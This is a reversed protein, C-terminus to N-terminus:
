STQKKLRAVISFDVKREGNRVKEEQRELTVDAFCECKEMNLKTQTVVAPDSAFGSLRVEDTRTRELRTVEVTENQPICGSMQDLIVIAPPMKSLFPEVVKDPTLEAVAKTLEDEIKGPAPVPKGPVTKKFVETLANDLWVDRARLKQLGSFFSLIGVLVLVGVLGSSFMARRRLEPTVLTQALEEKRFNFRMWGRRGGDSALGIVPEWYNPGAGAVADAWGRFASGSEPLVCRVPVALREAVEARVSEDLSVGTVVLETFNDRESSASLSRVTAMLEEVAMPSGQRLADAGTNMARMFVPIGADLAVFYTCGDLVHAMLSIGDAARRDRHAVTRWLNTLGSVDLDLRDPDLGVGELVELHFRVTETRLGVALVDTAKKDQQRIPMYDVTLEDIPFPVVPEMEYKVAAAVRRRGAFPVQLPRVIAATGPLCGTYTDATLDNEDMLQQLARIACEGPDEDETQEIPRRALTLVKASNGRQRVVVAKVETPAVEIACLRTPWIM